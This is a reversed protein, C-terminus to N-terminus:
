FPLGDDGNPEKNQDKEHQTQEWVKLGDVAIHMLGDAVENVRQLVDDLEGKAIVIRVANNICMGWTIGYNNNRKPAPAKSTGGGLSAHVVKYGTPGNTIKVVDGKGYKELQQHLASSAFHGYEDGDYKLTYLRWERGKDSIGEKCRDFMLEVEYDYDPVFDILDRNAM